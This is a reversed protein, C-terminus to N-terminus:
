GAIARVVWGDVAQPLPRERKAGKWVVAGDLGVAWAVGVGLVRLGDPAEARSTIHHHGHVILRAGMARALDDLVRLGAPHSSPAEHTVLIDAKERSLAELDEPWIAATALFHRLAAARSPGLDPRTEALDAALEERRYLRPPADAPWVHPLFAGGLGAVRLGDIEAIRAHLAGAATRPNREPAALNAWMEPGADHDHNGHIWYVAVGRELLPAALHDLPRACEVDGLLVAARPFTSLAAIGAEVHHWNQHIDGIFILSM